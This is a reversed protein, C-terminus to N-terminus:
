NSNYRKESEGLAEEARKKETIDRATGFVGIIKGDKDRLPENKFQCISGNTFTLEFESSEGNLTRKYIDLAVKQSEDNFLPLFSKGLLDKSTLGTIKESMENAYTINGFLDTEYAADGLKDLFNRFRRESNQLGEIVQNLEFFTNEIETFRQELEEYTPKSDM